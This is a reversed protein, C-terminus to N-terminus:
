EMLLIKNNERSIKLQFAMAVQNVFSDADAIPMSGSVTQILMDGSTVEIKIGYNDKAMQIMEQLSTQNLIIKNETWSAYIKPDVERKTYKDKKFEVLEGPNMTIIKEKKDVSFSLTIKGSKLVVKTDSKRHYVNFSTGLVKVALGDDVMVQFPQHNHKHIVDFFAEGDLWVERTVKEDWNDTFVISSNANLIVTSSDPLLVTRTEGYSTEYRITNSSDWIYLYSGLAILVGAAAAMWWRNSKPASYVGKDDHSSDRINIWTSSIEQETLSYDPFTLKKLLDIAEEVEERRDHHNAIWSRWFLNSEDTPQWVWARFNEDMVFDSVTFHYYDKM